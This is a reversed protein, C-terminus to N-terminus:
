CNRWHTRPNSAWRAPAGNKFVMLALVGGIRYRRAPEPNEDANVKGATAEPHEAALREVIPSLMRCSGRWDAWFEVPVPGQANLATEKFNKTNLSLVSM